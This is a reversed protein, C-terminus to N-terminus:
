LRGGVGPSVAGEAELQDDPCTLSDPSCTEAADCLDTGERCVYTSAFDARMPGCVGDTTAGGEVSCAQCDDTAGDGCAADCCVGDVCFGAPCQWAEDVTCPDGNERSSSYVYASGSTQVPGIDDGRCGFVIDWDVAVSDGCDDYEGGWM